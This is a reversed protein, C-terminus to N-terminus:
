LTHIFEVIKDIEKESLIKFKGFPPMSTNPNRKTADWIQEKLKEKTYRKMGMLPPGMNGALSGGKIQHCALCNGKKRNFTLKKGEEVVSAAVSTSVPTLALSGLLTAVSVVTSVMKATKRM